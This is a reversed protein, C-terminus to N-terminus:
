GGLGNLTATIQEETDNRVWRETGPDWQEAHACDALHPAVVGPAPTVDVTRSVTTM